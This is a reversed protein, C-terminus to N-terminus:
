CWARRSPERMRVPGIAVRPQLHHERRDAVGVARDYTQQVDTGLDVRVLRLRRRSRDHPSTRPGDLAGRTTPEVRRREHSTEGHGACYAWAGDIRTVLPGTTDRNVHADCVYEILVSMRTM